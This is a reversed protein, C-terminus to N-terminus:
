FRGGLKCLRAKNPGVWETSFWPGAGAGEGRVEVQRFAGLRTAWAGACGFYWRGFPFPWSWPLHGLLSACHDLWGGVPRGLRPCRLGLNGDLVGHLM